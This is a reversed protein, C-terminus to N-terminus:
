NTLEVTSKKCSYLFFVFFISMFQKYMENSRSTFLKFFLWVMVGVVVLLVDSSVVIAVAAGGVVSSSSLPM